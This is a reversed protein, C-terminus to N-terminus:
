CFEPFALDYTKLIGEQQWPELGTAGLEAGVSQLVRPNHRLYMTVQEVAQTAVKQNGERISASTGSRLSNISVYGYVVLPLLAALAILLVFRATIRRMERRAKKREVRWDGAFPVIDRGAEAAVDFNRSVARTTEGFTLFVAPPDDHLIQFFDAVG